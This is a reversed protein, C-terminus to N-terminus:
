HCNQLQNIIERKCFLFIAVILGITVGSGGMSMYTDWYSMNIINLQSRDTIGSNVM